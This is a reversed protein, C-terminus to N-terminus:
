PLGRVFAHANARADHLAHRERGFEPVDARRDADLQSYFDEIKRTKRQTEGMLYKLLPLDGEFDYCM